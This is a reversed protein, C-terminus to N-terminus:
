AWAWLYFPSCLVVLAATYAFWIRQWRPRGCLVRLLCFLPAWYYGLIYTFKVTSNKGVEPEKWVFVSLLVLGGTFILAAAQHWSLPRRRRLNALSGLALAVPLLFYALSFVSAAVLVVLRWRSRSLHRPFDFRFWLYFLLGALPLFLNDPRVM